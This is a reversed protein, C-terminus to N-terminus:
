LLGRSSSSRSPGFSTRIGELRIEDLETKRRVRERQSSCLLGLEFAECLGRRPNASLISANRAEVLVVAM